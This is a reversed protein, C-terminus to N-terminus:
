TLTMAHFCITTSFIFFVHKSFIYVLSEGKGYKSVNLVLRGGFRGLTDRELGADRRSEGGALGWEKCLEKREAKLFVAMDGVVDERQKEVYRLLNKSTTKLFSFRMPVATPNCCNFLCALAFAENYASTM